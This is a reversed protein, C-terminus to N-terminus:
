KDWEQREIWWKCKIEGEPKDQEVRFMVDWRELLWERSLSYLYSLESMLYEKNFVNSLLLVKMM